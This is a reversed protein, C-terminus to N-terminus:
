MGNQVAIVIADVIVVAFVAVGDVVGVSVSVLALALM